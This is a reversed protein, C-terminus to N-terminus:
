NGCPFRHILSFMLIVAISVDDKYPAGSPDSIEQEILSKAIASGLSLKPPLCFIRQKHQTALMANVWTIGDAAGSLYDSVKEKTEPSEIVKRYWELPIDANAVCPLIAFMITALTLKRDM